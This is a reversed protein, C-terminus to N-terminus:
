TATPCADGRAGTLLDVYEGPAGNMTGAFELLSSAQPYLVRKKAKRPEDTVNAGVRPKVDFPRNRGNSM